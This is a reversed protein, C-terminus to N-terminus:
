QNVEDVLKALGAIVIARLMLLLKEPIAGASAGINMTACNAPANNAALMPLWSKARGIESGENCIGSGRHGQRRWRGTFLNARQVGTGADAGAATAGNALDGFPSARGGATLM